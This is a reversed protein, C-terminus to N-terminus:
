HAARAITAHGKLVAKVMYHVGQPFSSQRYVLCESIFRASWPDM